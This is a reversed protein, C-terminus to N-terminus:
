RRRGPSRSEQEAVTQLDPLVPGEDQIRLYTPDFPETTAALAAHALRHVTLELAAAQGDRVQMRRVVGLQSPDLDPEGRIEDDPASCHM